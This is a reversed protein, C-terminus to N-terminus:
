SSFRYKGDVCGTEDYLKRKEEDSLISYVRQLSQFKETADDVHKNKDPHLKMAMSSLCEM